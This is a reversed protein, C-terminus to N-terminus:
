NAEALLFANWGELVARFHELTIEYPAAETFNSNIAVRGAAMTVTHGNGVFERLADARDEVARVHDLVEECITNSGQIDVELFTM